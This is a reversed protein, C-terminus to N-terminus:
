PKGSPLDLWFGQDALKSAYQAPGDDFKDCCTDACFYVTEGGPAKTSVAPDIEKGDVPCKTQYSYSAALLVKYKWPAAQFSSKCREGCLYVKAGAYEVFVRKDITEGSVPCTVQIRPWAELVKRQEAIKVAFMTPNARLKEVCDPCGLFVPGDDLVTRVALNIPGEDEGVPCAPIELGDARTFVQRPPRVPSTAWIGILSAALVVASVVLTIM